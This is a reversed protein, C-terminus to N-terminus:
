LRKERGSAFITRFNPAPSKAIEGARSVMLEMAKADRQKEVESFHDRLSKLQDYFPTERAFQWFYEEYQVGAYNWPKFFLNYHVIVPNEILPRAPSPMADYIEPLHQIHGYCMANLYDQDPAVVDFQYKNYLELFKEGFNLERLKKTNMLLVGSNIYETVPVGVATKTYEALIENDAISSDIICGLYNDGLDEQWLRSIDGPVITDADLYIGRDYQPFMEPIFLRFFITLTYTSARLYNGIRDTIMDLSKQMPDLFIRFNDNDHSLSNLYNINEPALEEHIIHIHYQFAPNANKMLSILSPALFKVYENNITYFIPIIKKM